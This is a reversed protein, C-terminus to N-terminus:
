RQDPPPEDPLRHVVAPIGLPPTEPEVRLEPPRNARGSLWGLVGAYGALATAVLLLWFGIGITTVPRDEPEVFRTLLDNSFFNDWGLVQMGTSATVAVQVSIAVTLLLVSFRVIRVSAPAAAALVGAVAAVLLVVAAGIIVAGNDAMPLPVAQSGREDIETAGWGSIEVKSGGGARIEVIFLNLFSSIVALLSAVFCMLAGVPRWLRRRDQSPRPPQWAAAAADPQWPEGTPEQQPAAPEPAPPTGEPQWGTPEPLPPAPEQGVPLLIDEGPPPSATTTEPASPRDAPESGTM